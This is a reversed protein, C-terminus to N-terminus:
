GQAAQATERRGGRTTIALTTLGLVVAWFQTPNGPEGTVAAPTLVGVAIYGAALIQRRTTNRM